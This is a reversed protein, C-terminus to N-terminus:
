QHEVIDTNVAAEEDSATLSKLLISRILAQGESSRLYAAVLQNISEEKIGADERAFFESLAQQAISSKNGYEGASAYEELKKVIYPSLSFGTPKTTRKGSFEIESM